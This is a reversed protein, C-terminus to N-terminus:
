SSRDAASLRAAVHMPLYFWPPMDGGEVEHGIREAQAGTARARGQGVRLLQSSAQGRRRRSHVLWSVPAARSYWPWVTENSHCDYCARRLVADVPPPAAVDGTVPPNTREFQVLQIAALVGVAALGIKISRKMYMSSLRLALGGGIRFGTRQTPERRSCPHACAFRATLGARLARDLPSPFTGRITVFVHIRIDSSIGDVLRSQRNGPEPRGRYSRRM